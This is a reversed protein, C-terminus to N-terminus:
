ETEQENSEEKKWIPLRKLDQLDRYATERATIEQETLRTKKDGIGRLLAQFELARYVELSKIHSYPAINRLFETAAKSTAQWVHVPRQNGGRPYTTIGGAWRSQVKELIFYDTNTIQVHLVYRVRGKNRKPCSRDVVVSGEGDFLGAVYEITIPVPRDDNGLGHIQYYRLTGINWLVHALHPLGSEPDLDEGRRWAMLHRVASGIFEHWDNGSKWNSRDYKQEGYSFVEGWELLVEVPIQDVGPKGESYHLAKDPDREGISVAGPLVCPCIEVELLSRGCTTCSYGKSEM